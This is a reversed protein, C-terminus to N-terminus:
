GSVKHQQLSPYWQHVKHMRVVWRHQWDRTAQSNDQSQQTRRLRVVRVDPSVHARQALLQASHNAQAHDITAIQQDCLRWFAYLFRPMFTDDPDDIQGGPTYEGTVRNEDFGLAATRDRIADGAKHVTAAYEHLARVQDATATYNLIHCRIADLLLPPLPTGQARAQAAFDLFTDPRVPGYSDHYASMRIAPADQM